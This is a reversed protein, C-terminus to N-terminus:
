RTSTDFFAPAVQVRTLSPTLVMGRATMVPRTGVFRM